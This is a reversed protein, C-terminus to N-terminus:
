WNDLNIKNRNMVELFSNVLVKATVLASRNPSDNLVKSFIELLTPENQSFLNNKFIEQISIEIYSFKSVVIVLVLERPIAYNEVLKRRSEEPLEPLQEKLFPVDILNYKNEVNSDLHVRLPPLNPEPM